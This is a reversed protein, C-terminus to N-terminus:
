ICFFRLLPFHTKFVVISIRPDNRAADELSHPRSKILGTELRVAIYRSWFTGFLQTSLNDNEIKSRKLNEDSRRVASKLENYSYFGYVFIVGVAVFALVQPTGKRTMDAVGFRVIVDSYFLV